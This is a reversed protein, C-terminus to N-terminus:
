FTYSLGVLPVVKARLGADNVAFEVNATILFNRYPNFKAGVAIADLNASSQYLQITPTTAGNVDTFTSSKIRQLSSLRQGLFDVVITWRKSIGFDAGADYYFVNPLKGSTGTAIDGVLVSDGNYEFGLDVHPSVRARYSAVFFPKVGPAGSGLFNAADGTPMRVDLGLAIRWREQQLVTGKVRFVVDGIGAASKPPVTTNPTTGTKCNGLVGGPFIQNVSGAPNACDFFHFYGPAGNGPYTSSYNPGGPLVPQPVTRVIQADSVVSFHVDSIPIAASVDIRNTLGFTAYLTVQNATLGIRNRTTIYETEYDPKVTSGPPIFQSHGFVVPLKKMDIGDLSTFDYYQYTVAVYLHHKGITEARETLIPGYSENSRIVAGTTRDFTFLVGSAPSALPLLTLETGIAATLPVFNQQFSSVFHAFHNPNPLTLGQPGFTQPIVCILKGSYSPKCANTPQQQAFLCAPSIAFCVLLLKLMCPRMVLNEKVLRRILRKRKGRAPGFISLSCVALPSQWDRLNTARDNLM